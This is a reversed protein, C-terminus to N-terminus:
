SDGTAEFSAGATSGTPLDPLPLAFSSFPKIAPSSYRREFTPYSFPLCRCHAATRCHRPLRLPQLAGRTLVIDVSRTAAYSARVLECTAVVGLLALRLDEIDANSLRHGAHRAKPTQPWHKAKRASM